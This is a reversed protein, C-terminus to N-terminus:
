IINRTREINNERFYNEVEETVEKESSMKLCKEALSKASEFSLKRITRKISPIASPSVSLCDLGLGVLIPTALTDAAMEGCMSVSVNSKKGETVIHHITRLVAPHFEQYLDSVIDNGRDVAMLFQILDNTGISFFDVHKGFERAMLAASPVEVM